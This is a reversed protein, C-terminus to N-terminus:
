WFVLNVKKNKTTDFTGFGMLKLMDKDLGKLSDVGVSFMWSLMFSLFIGEFLLLKQDSLCHISLRVTQSM